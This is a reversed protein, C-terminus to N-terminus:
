NMGRLIELRGCRIGEEYDKWLRNSTGRRGSGSGIYRELTGDVKEVVILYVGALVLTEDAPAAMSQLDALRFRNHGLTAATNSPMRLVFARAM